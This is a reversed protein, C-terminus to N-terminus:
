VVTCKVLNLLSLYKIRRMAEDVDIPVELLEAKLTDRFQAM